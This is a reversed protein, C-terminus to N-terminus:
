KSYKNKRRTKRHITKKRAMTKGNRKWIYKKKTEGPKHHLHELRFSVPKKTKILTNTTTDYWGCQPDNTILIDSGHMNETCMSSRKFYFENLLNRPFCPDEIKDFSKRCPIKVEDKTTNMHLRRKHTKRKRRKGGGLEPITDIKQKINNYKEAQENLKEFLELLKEKERDIEIQQQIELSELEKQKRTEISEFSKLKEDYQQLLKNYEEEANKLQENYYGLSVAHAKKRISLM